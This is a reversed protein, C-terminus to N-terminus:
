KLKLKMTLQKCPGKYHGSGKINETYIAQQPCNNFCAWCSRCKSQDFTIKKKFSVADYPCVKECEGCRICLKTDVFKKGMNDKIKTRPYKCLVVGLMDPRIKIEDVKGDRSLKEIYENLKNIFCNFKWFEKFTPSTSSKKERARKPPYSTPVRLSHASIVKFGKEKLKSYMERKTNGSLYSYTNFIFANKNKQSNLSNLFKECIEPMGWWHTFTAFGIIQYEDLNIYGGESINYFDFHANSINKDLYKCALETNGTNSCYCILGRM